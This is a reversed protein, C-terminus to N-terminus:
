TRERGVGSAGSRASTAGRIPLLAVSTGMRRRRRARSAAEPAPEPSPSERGECCTTLRRDVEELSFRLRARPGTGLRRAGLEDAHAYVFSADVSLYRAVEAVDVLAARPADTASAPSPPRVCSSSCDSYNM